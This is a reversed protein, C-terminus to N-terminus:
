DKNILNEKVLYHFCQLIVNCEDHIETKLLNQLLNTKKYRLYSGVKHCEGGRERLKGKNKIKIEKNSQRSIGNGSDIVEKTGQDCPTKEDAGKSVANQSLNREGYKM